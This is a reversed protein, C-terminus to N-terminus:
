YRSRAALRDLLGVFEARKGHPDNGLAGRAIATASELSAGDAGRLWMATMAVATAFRFDGDSEHFDRAVGTHPHEILISEDDAPLKYRLKVTLWEDSAEPAISEGGYRLTEVPPMSRGDGTEIEYFATVTHGSGIDGADVADNSFDEKRLMRNAYGLLRYGRLQGPNFEIQIKVDRAITVLTGMLDHLFVQRAEAMSDLYHFTGNGQNTIAELMADNLNGSGVGVVTLDIHNKANEAVLQILEGQSTVGVNFDGDTALVVRNIGGPKFNERATRYALRIGAGGNTSGGARLNDLAAAIEMRGADDCATAPLLLGENGSYVIISLTDGAHLEEVLMHLSRVVLPLRETPSMSGSVDILFVLNAPPRSAREIERGKLAVRLLQRDPNWPCSANAVHVAFPRDGEPQPYDYDFYNVMEELRVADRPIPRHSQIMGRVNAYSATDVDISFTSLPHDVTHQWGNDVLVGYRERDVPPPQPMPQSAAPPVHAPEAFFVRGTGPSRAESAPLHLTPVGPLRIPVPTGEILEAPLETSLLFSNEDSESVRPVDGTDAHKGGCAALLITALCLPISKTKM